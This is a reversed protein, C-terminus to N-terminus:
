AIYDHCINDWEMQLDAPLIGGNFNRIEALLSCLNRREESMRKKRDHDDFNPNDIIQGTRKKVQEIREALKKIIDESVNIKGMSKVAASNPGYKRAAEAEADKAVKDLEAKSARGALGMGFEIIKATSAAASLLYSLTAPDVM